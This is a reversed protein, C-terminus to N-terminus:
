IGDFYEMNGVFIYETEPHMTSCSSCRSLLVIFNGFFFFADSLNVKRTPQVLELVASAPQSYRLFPRMVEHAVGGKISESPSVFKSSLM